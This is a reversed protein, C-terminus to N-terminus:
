RQLSERLEQTFSDGAPVVIQQSDPLGAYQGAMVAAEPVLHATVFVAIERTAKDTDRNRFLNGLLPVDSLGPVSSHKDRTRNETLGAVVATGGDRLVVASQATRRTVVPLDNGRGRPVSDSVEISMELTIDNNDGIRPTIELSTGSTITEFQTQYYYQAQNSIQPTLAFREETVVGLRSRKGDQGVLKPNAIIDAESNEELFNLAATLANTFTQDFSFGLTVGWPWSGVPVAADPAPTGRLYSSGHFGAELTPMGWKIGINLLDGREMAVIRADLLVHRPRIDIAKLEEVIRDAIEPPATVTVLHSNPDLEAQVYPQFATSLLLSAPTPSIYNLRVQRTESIRPFSGSDVKRDAVLYYGERHVVVYSTGAILMDLAVELPVGQGFDAWAEGSVTEDPIIPVGAATSIDQLAQRLQDGTFVNQIPLFVQWTNEVGPVKRHTYVTGELIKTLASGLPMGMVSAPQITTPKVTQDYYVKAGTMQSLQLLVAFLDGSFNGTVLPGTLTGAAPQNPGPAAATTGGNPGLNDLRKTLDDIQQQLKEKETLAGSPQTPPVTETGQGAVTGGQPQVQQTTGGGTGQDGPTVPPTPPKQRATRDMDEVVNTFLESSPNFEFEDHSFILEGSWGYPVRISYKGKADTVATQGGPEATVTVGQIPEPPKGEQLQMAIVNSITMMKVTGTFNMNSMNQAVRPILRSAPSINCGAKTATIKGQWGHAVTLQFDGNADTLVPAMDQQDTMILVDAIPGEPSTVHGAITYTKVMPTYNEGLRSDTLETYETQDPEFTYGDLTPRVTLNAKYPINTASYAGDPGSVVRGPLGIMQVGAIGASGSITFTLPSARFDQRIEKSVPDISVTQPEFTYGEKEPTITGYFGYEVDISYTGGPGSTMDGPLGVLLVGPIGTTGHIKFKMVASKYNQGEKNETVEAYRQSPPSFTYGLRMPKVEGSWGYEVTDTYYGDADTIPQGPLGEMIVGALGASGSIQFTYVTAAYDEAAWPQMVNTYEREPPSFEHGEKFPTVKGSWGYTVEARYSGDAGTKVESPFGKMVVGEKGVNGSITFKQVSATFNESTMDQTVSDYNRTPPEFQWGEKYPTVVLISGYPVTISYRGDPGSNPDGPLGQLIVGPQGTSGAITFEQIRAEYDEATKDETVRSYMRSKPDFTFGPKIPTITGTWTAPVEVSYVGNNDTKPAPSGPFGQMTVEPEGVNGSITVMKRRITMQSHAEPTLLLLVCLTMVGGSLTRGIYKAM